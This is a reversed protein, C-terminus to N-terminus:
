QGESVSLGALPDKFYTQTMKQQEERLGWIKITRPEPKGCDSWDCNGAKM